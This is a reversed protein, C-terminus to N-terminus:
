FSAVAGVVILTEDRALQPMLPNMVDVPHDDFTPQTAHDYRAEVKVSLQDAVHIDFTGTVGALTQNPVLTFIGAQDYYYEGRVVFFLSPLIATRIYLAGGHFVATSAMPREQWGIDWTAVLQLRSLVDWEVIFDSFLRWEAANERLPMPQPSEPGAITNWSLNWKGRAWGVHTGLTKWDNNEGIIQWGNLLFFGATFGIPLTAVARVGAEYYPSFDSMWARTYTWNEKSPFTEFGVHSPFIGAEVMLWGFLYGVYAQQVFKWVDSGIGMGAPESQHLVETGTGYNLVLRLAVPQGATPNMAVDLAALNLSFENARKASTGAGPIFSAGTLPRNTNYAYYIDVYGSVDIRDYWHTEGPAAALLAFVLYM